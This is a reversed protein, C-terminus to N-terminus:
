FKYYKFGVDIGTVGVNLRVHLTQTCLYGMLDGYLSLIKSCSCHCLSHM